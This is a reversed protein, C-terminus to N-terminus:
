VVSFVVDGIKQCSKGDGSFGPKCSCTYSGKSNMCQANVDCLSPSSNCENVDTLFNKVAMLM